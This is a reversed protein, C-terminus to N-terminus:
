RNYMSPLNREIYYYIPNLNNINYKHPNTIVQLERDYTETHDPEMTPNLIHTIVHEAPTGEQLHYKNLHQKLISFLINIFYKYDNGSPKYYKQQIIKILQVYFMYKYLQKNDFHSLIKKTGNHEPDEIDDCSKYYIISREMFTNFNANYMMYKFYMKLQKIDIDKFDTLKYTTM